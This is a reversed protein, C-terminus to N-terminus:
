VLDCPMWQAKLESTFQFIHDEWTKLCSAKLDSSCGLSEQDGPHLFSVVEHM